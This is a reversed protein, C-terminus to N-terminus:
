TAASSRGPDPSPPHGTCACRSGAPGTTSTSREEYRLTARCLQPYRQSGAGDVTTGGSTTNLYLVGARVILYFSRNGAAGWKGILFQTESSFWNAEGEWRIDLDGTIDLVTVDPTTARDATGPM